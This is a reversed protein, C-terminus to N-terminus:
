FRCNVSSQSKKYKMAVEKGESVLEKMRKRAQKVDFNESTGGSEFHDIFVQGIAFTFAGSILGFNLGAGITGAVPILKLSSMGIIGVGGILSVVIARTRNKSFKVNYLFSLENVMKMQIAMILALDVMPIPVIGISVAWFINAIVIQKSKAKRRTRDLIVVQNKIEISAIEDVSMKAKIISTQPDDPHMPNIAQTSEIYNM